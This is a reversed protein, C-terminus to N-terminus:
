LKIIQQLKNVLKLLNDSKIGAAAVGFPNNAKGAQRAAIFAESIQNYYGGDMGWTVSVKNYTYHEKYPRNVVDPTHKLFNKVSEEGIYRTELASHGDNPRWVMLGNIWQFFVGYIMALHPHVGAKVFEYWAACRGPFETPTRSAICAGALINNPVNVNLVIGTNFAEEVDKTIFAEHWPSYNFLWNLFAKGDAGLEKGRTVIYSLVYKVGGVGPTHLGYHCATNTHFYIDDNGYVFGIQACYRPINVVRPHGDKTKYNHANIIAKNGAEMDKERLEKFVKQIETLGDWVKKEVAPVVPAPKETRIYLSGGVDNVWETGDEFKLVCFWLGNHTIVTAKRGPFNKFTYEEYRKRLKGYAYVTTGEATNKDVVKVLNKM